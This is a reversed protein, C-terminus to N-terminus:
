HNIDLTMLRVIAQDPTHLQRMRSCYIGPERKKGREELFSGPKSALDVNAEGFKMIVVVVSRASRVSYGSIRVKLAHHARM